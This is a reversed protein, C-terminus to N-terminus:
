QQRMEANICEHFYGVAAAAALRFSEGLKVEGYLALKNMNDLAETASISPPKVVGMSVQAIRIALEDRDIEVALVDRKLNSM